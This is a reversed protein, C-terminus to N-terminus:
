KELEEHLKRLRAVEVPDVHLLFHQDDSAGFTGVVEEGINLPIKCVLVGNTYGLDKLTVKYCRDELKKTVICDVLDGSEYKRM